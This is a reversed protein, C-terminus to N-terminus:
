TLVVELSVNDYRLSTGSAGRVGVHGPALPTPDDYTAVVTDNVYFTVVDGVTELAWAQPSGVAPILDGSAVSSNVITASGAATKKQISFVSGTTNYHALYFAAPSTDNLNLYLSATTVSTPFSIDARARLDLAGAPPSALLYFTSSSTGGFDGLGSASQNSRHTATNGFTTTDPHRGWGTTAWGVGPTYALGMDPNSASHLSTFTQWYSELIKWPALAGYASWQNAATKEFAARGTVLWLNEAAMEPVVVGADPTVLIGASGAAHVPLVTGLRFDVEADSPLAMDFGRSPIFSSFIKLRGADSLKPRYDVNVSTDPLPVAAMMRMGRM